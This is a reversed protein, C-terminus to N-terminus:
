YSALLKALLELRRADTTDKRVLSVRGLVASPATQLGSGSELSAAGLAGRASNESAFEPALAPSPVELDELEIEYGTPVQSLDPHQQEAAKTPSEDGTTVSLSQRVKRLKNWRYIRAARKEESLNLFEPDDMAFGLSDAFALGEEVAAELDAVSLIPGPGAYREIAPPDVDRLILAVHGKRGNWVGALAALSAVTAGASFREVRDQSFSLARVLDVRLATAGDSKSFM